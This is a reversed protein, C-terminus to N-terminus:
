ARDEGLLLTKMGNRAASVAAAIGEPETGMVIVDYSMEAYEPNSWIREETQVTSNGCGTLCSSVCFCLLVLFATIRKHRNM